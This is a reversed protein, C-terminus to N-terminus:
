RLSTTSELGFSYQYGQRDTPVNYDAELYIKVSKGNGSGVIMVGLEKVAISEPTLPIPDQGEKKLCLHGECLYFDIYTISEGEPLHNDTILSLQNSETTPEYISKAERIERSIVRMAREMSLTTERLAKTRANIRVAWVATMVISAMIISFIAIYVLVEVLTFGKKFIIKM